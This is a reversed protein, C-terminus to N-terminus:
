AAAATDAPITVGALIQELLSLPASPLASATSCPADAWERLMAALEPTLPAVDCVTAPRRVPATSAVPQSTAQLARPTV